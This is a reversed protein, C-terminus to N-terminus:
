LKFNLSVNKTLMDSKQEIRQNKNHRLKPKIRPRNHHHNKIRSKMMKPKKMTKKTMINMKLRARTMIQNKESAKGQNILLSMRNQFRIM